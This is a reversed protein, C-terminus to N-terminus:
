ATLEVNVDEIAEHAAHLLLLPINEGRALGENWRTIIYVEWQGEVTMVSAYFKKTNKLWCLVELMGDGTLLWRLSRLGGDRAQALVGDSNISWGLKEAAWRCLDDPTMSKPGPMM